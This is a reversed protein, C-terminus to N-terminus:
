RISKPGPTTRRMAAAACFPTASKAHGTDPDGKKRVKMRIV